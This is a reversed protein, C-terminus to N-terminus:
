ARIRASLPDYLPKLSADAAIKEGVVEIEYKGANVFEANVGDESHVYGLGIAGGLAHGYMGSTVYGAIEGDRYIPENHYLLAAPDKLLFQVMRKNVGADRQRLLSDRGIFGGAKDWAVAFGLGSEIPSEEDSIDHGWHRYAKEIRLSNVAHMGISAMGHEAGAATIEDYIHAAFETPVYLEWGLEGVYTIRSARVIGYGLEIERSTAFPFADNSLDTPTLSQLVDRAKPGMVALVALGSTVDTAVCRADSPTRSKLWHLDRVQSGASTVIMFDDDALRTVTLDSEIGGHENLWQTYVIRDPEIAVDNASINNLVNEADPGQVRIKAFSSMDILGVNERVAMHEAASYEFWNQRTYSFEYTPEVGEPAFWNAREWGATEGFCAGNAAHRDHLPTRRVGRATKFQYFPWHVDYLLGM